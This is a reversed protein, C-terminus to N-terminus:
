VLPRWTCSNRSPEVDSVTYNAKQGISDGWKSDIIEYVEADAQEKYHAPSCGGVIGLLIAASLSCLLLGALRFKSLALDSGRIQHANLGSAMMSGEVLNFSEENQVCFRYGQRALAGTKHLAGLKIEVCIFCL